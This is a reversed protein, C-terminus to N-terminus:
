RSVGRNAGGFRSSGFPPSPAQPSATTARVTSEVVGGPEREPSLSEAPCVRHRPRGERLPWGWRRCDGPIAPRGGLVDHTDGEVELISAATCSPGNRAGRLAATRAQRGSVLSDKAISRFLMRNGVWHGTQNRRLPTRLDMVGNRLSGSLAIYGGENDVRTQRWEGARPIWVSVSWGALRSTHSEFQESVVCGNLHRTIRNSGRGPGDSGGQGGPWTLEWDGLWFDFQAASPGTCPAASGAQAALTEWPSALLILALKLHDPRM